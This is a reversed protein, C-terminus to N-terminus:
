QTWIPSSVIFNRDGIWIGPLAERMQCVVVLYWHNPRYALSFDRVMSQDSVQEFHIAQDWWNAPPVGGGAPGSLIWISGISEDDDSAELHLHLTGDANPGVDRSGMFHTGGADTASTALRFGYDESAFVWRNKLANMVGEPSAEEVWIATHNPLGQWEGSLRFYIHSDQNNTAGVHWGALLAEVYGNLSLTYPQGMERNVRRTLLRLLPGPGYLEWTFMGSGVEFLQVVDDLAADYDTFSYGYSPNDAHNFQAVLNMGAQQRDLTWELLDRIDAVDAGPIDLEQGASPEKLICVHPGGTDDPRNWEFGRLAIIESSANTTEVVARTEEWEWTEVNPSHDTIAWVDLGVGLPYAPCIESPQLHLQSHRWPRLPGAECLLGHIDWPLVRRGVRKASYESHSHLNGRLLVTPYPEGQYTFQVARAWHMGGEDTFWECGAIIGDRFCDAVWLGGQALKTTSGADWLWVENSTDLYFGSSHALDKSWAVRGDDDVLPRRDQFNDATVQQAAGGSWVFLEYGTTQPESLRQSCWAVVSGGVAIEANKDYIDASLRTSTVGDWLWIEGSVTVWVVWYGDTAVGQCEGSYLPTITSGDWLLLRHGYGEYTRCLWVALNRRFGLLDIWYYGDPAEWLTTTAGSEWLCVRPNLDSAPWDNTVYMVRGGSLLPGSVPVGYKTPVQAVHHITGGSYLEFYQETGPAVVDHVWAVESGDADRGHYRNEWGGFPSFPSSSGGLFVHPPTWWTSPGEDWTRTVWINGGSTLVSVDHSWPSVPVVAANGGAVLLPIMLCCLIIRVCLRGPM